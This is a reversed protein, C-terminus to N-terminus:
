LSNGMEGRDEREVGESFCDWLLGGAHHSSITPARAHVTASHTFPLVPLQTRRVNGYLGIWALQTHTLPPLMHPKQQSLLQTFTQLDISRANDEALQMAM